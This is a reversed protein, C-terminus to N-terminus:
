WYAHTSRKLLDVRASTHLDGVNAGERLYYQRVLGNFNIPAATGAYSQFDTVEPVTRLYEAMESLVRATDEVTTYSNDHAEPRDNRENVTM